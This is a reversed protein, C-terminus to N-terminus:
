RYTVGSSAEYDLLRAVATELTYYSGVTPAGILGNIIIYTASGAALSGFDKWNETNLWNQETM